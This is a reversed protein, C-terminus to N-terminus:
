QVRKPEGMNHYLMQNGKRRVAAKRIDDVRDSWM